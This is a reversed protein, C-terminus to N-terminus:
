VLNEIELASALDKFGLKKNKKLDEPLWEKSEQVSAKIDQFILKKQRQKKEVEQDKQQKELVRQKFALFLEKEEERRKEKASVKAIPESEVVGSFFSSIAKSFRELKRKQYVLVGEDILDFLIEEGM